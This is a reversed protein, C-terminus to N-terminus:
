LQAGGGGVVAGGDNTPRAASGGVMVRSGPWDCFTVRLPVILL